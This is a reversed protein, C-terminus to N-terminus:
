APIPPRGSHTLANNAWKHDEPAHAAKHGPEPLPSRDLLSISAEQGGARLLVPQHHRCTSASRLSPARRITREVPLVEVVDAGARHLEGCTGDSSRSDVVFLPRVGVREYAQALAVIWPASDRTPIV